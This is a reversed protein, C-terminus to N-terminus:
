ITDLFQGFSGKKLRKPEIKVNEEPFLNTPEDKKESFEVNITYEQFLLSENLTRFFCWDRYTERPSIEGGVWKTQFHSINYNDKLTLKTYFEKIELNKPIENLCMSIIYTSSNRIGESFGQSDFIKVTLNGIPLIIQPTILDNRSTIESQNACGALILLTLVLSFLEIKNKIHM